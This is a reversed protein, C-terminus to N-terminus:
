AGPNGGLLREALEVSDQAAMHEYRKLMALTQHGSVNAAQALNAGGKLLRTVATHRTSHLVVRELPDERDNLLGAAARCTKWASDISKPKTPDKEDYFVFDSHLPRVKRAEILTAKVDSVLPLARPRKNKTKGLIAVSEDLNVDKWRLNLVESKRAATTLAMRVYLHLMSWNSAKAAAMLRSEEEATLIRNRKRESEDLRPVNGGKMPHADIMDLKIAYNFVSELSARYRNVTSVTLKKGTPIPGRPTNRMAPKNQLKALGQNIVGKGIESVKMDGLEARWFELHAPEWWRTGKMPPAEVFTDILASLTERGARKKLVADAENNRLWEKAEKQTECVKSRSAYGQRRVYARYVTEPKGTAKSIRTTKTISGM